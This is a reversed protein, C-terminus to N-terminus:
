DTRLLRDYFRRYQDIIKDKGFERKARERGQMGMGKRREEDRFLTMIIEAM